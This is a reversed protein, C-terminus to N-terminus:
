IVDGPVGTRLKAKFSGYIVTSNGEWLNNQVRKIVIPITREPNDFRFLIGEIIDKKENLYRGMGYNSHTFFVDHDITVNPNKDPNKNVARFKVNWEPKGELIRSNNISCIISDAIIDNRRIPDYFVRNMEVNIRKDREHIMKETDLVKLYYGLVFGCTVLILACVILACHYFTDSRTVGYFWLYGDHFFKIVNYPFHRFLEKEDEDQPHSHNEHIDMFIYFLLTCLTTVGSGRRVM